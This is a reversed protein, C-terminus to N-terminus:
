LLSEKPIKIKRENIIKIKEPNKPNKTKITEANVPNVQM